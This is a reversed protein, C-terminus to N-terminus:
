VRVECYPEWLAKAEPCLEATQERHHYLYNICHLIGQRIPAPIDEADGYGATFDIIIKDAVPATKLKLMNGPLTLEYDGADLVTEVGNLEVAVQTVSQVPTPVLSVSQGAIYVQSMQWSQTILVRGLYKEAMERAVTTLTNLLSDEESGDVRLFLKIEALTLPESAAPTVLVAQRPPYHIM